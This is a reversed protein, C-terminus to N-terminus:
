EELLGRMYTIYHPFVIGPEALSLCWRKLWELSLYGDYEADKLLSVVERIPLDGHGVMEYQVGDDTKASDKIHLYKIHSGLKNFTTKASEGFFRVPHNIDWLVAVNDAAVKGLLELMVDSNAFAGNTEILITVDTGSAHDSLIKLRKAVDDVSVDTPEPGSDGIVRIYPVRLKQALDIYAKADELHSEIRYTENLRAGSTLCSIALGLKELRAKTHDINEPLFPKASPAFMDKEIGRIEIADYGLDKSMSLIDDFSWDPCGLTSFALKMM